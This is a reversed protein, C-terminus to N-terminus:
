NPGPRHEIRAGETVVKTVDLQTLLAPDPDRTQHHIDKLILELPTRLIHRYACMGAKYSLIQKDALSQLLKYPNHVYEYLGQFNSAGGRFHMPNDPQLLIDALQHVASDVMSEPYGITPVAHRFATVYKVTPIREYRRITRPCECLCLRCFELPGM